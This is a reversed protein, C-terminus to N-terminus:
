TPYHIRFWRNPPSYTNCGLQGYKWCGILQQGTLKIEFVRVEGGFRCQNLVVNGKVYIIGNVDESM